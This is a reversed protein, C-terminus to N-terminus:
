KWQWSFLSARFLPHVKEFDAKRAVSRFRVQTDPLNMYVIGTAFDQGFAHYAIVVEYTQNQNIVVPNMAESVITANQHGEPLSALAKERLAKKTEDDFPQPAALPTQEIEAYAQNLKPPTFRIRAAGGAPAWGRPQEYTITRGDQKFNLVQFTIGAQERQTVVPTFDIGAQALSGSFAVLALVFCALGLKM